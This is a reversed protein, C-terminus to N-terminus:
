SGECAAQHRETSSSPAPDTATRNSTKVQQQWEKICARDNCGACCTHGLLMVYPDEWRCRTDPKTKDM